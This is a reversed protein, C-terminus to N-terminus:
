SMGFVQKRNCFFNFLAQCWVLFYHLTQGIKELPITLYLLKHALSGKANVLSAAAAAHHHLFFNKGALWSLLIMDLSNFPYLCRSNFTYTSTSNRVSYAFPYKIHPLMQKTKKPKSWLAIFIISLRRCYLDKINQEKM